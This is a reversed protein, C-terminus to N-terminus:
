TPYIPTLVVADCGVGMTCCKLMSPRSPPVHDKKKLRSEALTAYSAKKCAGLGGQHCGDVKVSRSWHLAGEVSRVLKCRKEARGELIDRERSRQRAKIEENMWIVRLESTKPIELNKVKLLDSARQIANKGDRQIRNSMRPAVVPGWANKGTMSSRAM